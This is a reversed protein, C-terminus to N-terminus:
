AREEASMKGAGGRMFTGTSVAIPEGEDDQWTRSRVFSVSRTLRYCEARCTLPRDPQAPRLFDVRLDITAVVEFRGTAAVGAIGSVTDILTTIIGTHWVGRETDGLWEPRYPLEMTVGGADVRVIRMGCDKAHPIANTFHQQILAHFQESEM